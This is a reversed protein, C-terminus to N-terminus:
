RLSDRLRQIVYRAQAVELMEGEFRSGPGAGEREYNCQIAYLAHAIERELDTRPQKPVSVAVHSPMVEDYDYSASGAIVSTSIRWGTGSRVTGPTSSAATGTGRVPPHGM